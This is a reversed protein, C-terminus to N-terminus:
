VEGSYSRCLYGSQYPHEADWEPRERHPHRPDYHARDGHFTQGPVDPVGPEVDRFDFQGFRIEDGLIERMLSFTGPHQVFCDLQPNELLPHAHGRVHTQGVHWDAPHAAIDRDVFANLFAVEDATLANPIVFYGNTKFFALAESSIM